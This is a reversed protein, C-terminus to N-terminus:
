IYHQATRINLYGKWWMWFIQEYSCLAVTHGDPFFHAQTQRICFITVSQLCKVRSTSELPSLM